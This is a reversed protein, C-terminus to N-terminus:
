TTPDAGHETLLQEIAARDEDGAVWQLCDWPTQGDGAKANPDAGHELLLRVTDPHGGSIAGALPTPWGVARDRSAPIESLFGTVVTNLGLKAADPANVRAGSDLLLRIADPHNFERAWLVPSSAHERDRHDLDAHGDILATMCALDGRGAAHHLATAGGDDTVDPNVGADLLVTIASPNGARVFRHLLLGAQNPDVRRLTSRATDTDGREAAQALEAVPGPGLRMGPRAQVFTWRHGELDAAQYTTSGYSTIESIIEAGAAKAHDFHAHLDDVHVWVDHDPTESHDHDDTGFLIVLGNGVHFEIWSPTDGPEPAHDVDWDGLQFVRRLWRAAETPDKYYLAVGLRDVERPTREATDRRRLWADYTYLMNVWGFGARRPDGDPLLYQRVSVRTGVETKTFRVDVETDDGTLVLRDGPEWVTVRERADLDGASEDYIEMVRGGIGPELRLESLRSADYNNIPGRVWWLDIETTFITFATEPDVAVEVSSEAETKM